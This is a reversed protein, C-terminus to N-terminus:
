LSVRQNIPFMRRRTEASWIYSEFSMTQENKLQYRVLPTGFDLVKIEFKLGKPEFRIVSLRDEVMNQFETRKVATLEAPKPFILDMFELHKLSVLLEMILDQDIPYLTRLSLVALDHFQLLFNFDFYNWIEFALYIMKKHQRLRDIVKKYIQYDLDIYCKISVYRLNTVTDLVKLDTDNVGVRSLYFKMEGDANVLRISEDTNFHHPELYLQRFGSSGFEDSLIFENNLVFDEKLILGDTRPLYFNYFNNTTNSRKAAAVIQDATEPRLPIGGVFIKLDNRLESLVQRLDQSHAIKNLLVAECALDVRKLSPYNDSLHYLTYLTAPLIHLHEVNQLLGTELIYDFSEEGFQMNFALYRLSHSQIDTLGSYFMESPMRRNITREPLCIRSLHSVGQLVLHKLKNSRLITPNVLLLNYLELHALQEFKAYHFDVTTEKKAYVVLKEIPALRDLVAQEKFFESLNPVELEFSGESGYREDVNSLRGHHPKNQEFITLEKIVKDSAISSLYDIKPSAM